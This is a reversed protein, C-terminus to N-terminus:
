VVRYKISADCVIKVRGKEVLRMLQRTALPPPIGTKLAATIIADLDAEGGLESILRLIKEM